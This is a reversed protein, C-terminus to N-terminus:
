GDMPSSLIYINVVAWVTAALTFVNSALPTWISFIISPICM